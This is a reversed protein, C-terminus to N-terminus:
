NKGSVYFSIEQNVDVTIAITGDLDTRYIAAGIRQLNEVTGAFPHNFKNGVGCSIVAWRPEIRRLFIETNSTKSGHHGAKLVDANLRLQQDGSLEKEKEMELDGSFLAIFDGSILRFVVSSNNVNEMGRGNLNIKPYVIDLGVKGIRFDNGDIVWIKVGKERAVKLLKDYGSYQYKVGTLLLNKVEYRQFVEVLGNLHDAHPHSLVVLDISREYFPMLQSLKTLVTNDPGGDILLWEGAPLRGLIADGQGIDLYWLHLQGDPLSMGGWLGIGLLAFATILIYRGIKDM